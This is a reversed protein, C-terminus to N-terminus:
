CSRRGRVSKQGAAEISFADLADGLLDRNM